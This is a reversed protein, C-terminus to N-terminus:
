RGTSGFVPFGCGYWGDATKQLLTWDANLDEVGERFCHWLDTQTTKGTGSPATFLIAKGQWIISASIIACIKITDVDIKVIQLWKSYSFTKM